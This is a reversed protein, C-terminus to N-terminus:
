SSTTIYFFEPDLACFVHIFEQLHLQSRSFTM